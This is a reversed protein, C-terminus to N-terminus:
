KIMLYSFKLSVNKKSLLDDIKGRPSIPSQLRPEPEASAGTDLAVLLKRHTLRSM